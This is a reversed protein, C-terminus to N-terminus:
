RAPGPHVNPPLDGNREGDQKAKDRGHLLLRGGDLVGHPHPLDLEPCLFEPLVGGGQNFVTKNGQHDRHDFNPIFEGRRGQGAAQIVRDPAGIDCLDTKSAPIQQRHQNGSGCQEGCVKETRPLSTIGHDFQFINGKSILVSFGLVVQAM